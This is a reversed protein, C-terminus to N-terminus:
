FQVDLVEKRSNSEFALEILKIVDRAEEPRIMMESYNVIVDYVNQYFTPYSGALTEIKGEFNLKGMSSKLTGWYKEKEKGWAPGVPMRGKVLESEQPDLGYKVFSGKNGHIIFRPSSKNVMMGAKLIAKFDKYFLQVEFYDDVKSGARQKRIDAFLAQPKGFLHVAQDILHSGLDFLIGGAPLDKDRWANLPLDPKFRDFHSEYEKVDGLLNNDLIKKITLFDGDFRRNQFVFIHRNQSKALGILEDAELSTPTFPKEIVVHKGALLCDKVMPFHLTNPTCVAVLDIEPDDLLVRYDKEVELYPYNKKSDERHREIVTKIRFGPHTHLFPAHFVKGSLGFGIIATTLTKNM